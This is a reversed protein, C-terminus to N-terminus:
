NLKDKQRPEVCMQPGLYGLRPAELRLFAVRLGVDEATVIMLTLCSMVYGSAGV